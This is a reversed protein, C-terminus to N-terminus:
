GDNFTEVSMELSGNTGYGVIQPSQGPEEYLFDDNNKIAIRLARQDNDNEFMNRVTTFNM